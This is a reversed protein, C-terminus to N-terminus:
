KMGNLEPAACYGVSGNPLREVCFWTEYQRGNFDKYTIRGGAVLHARGSAILDYDHKILPTTSYATTLTPHKQGPAIIIDNPEPERQQIERITKADLTNATQLFVMSRVIAPTKGYDVLQFNLTPRDGAKFHFPDPTEFWIWPRQDEIFNNHADTIARETLDNTRKTECVYAVLALFALVELLTKAWKFFKERKKEIKEKESPPPLSEVTVRVPPSPGDSPTSM